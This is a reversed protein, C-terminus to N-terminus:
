ANEDLCPIRLKKSPNNERYRRAECKIFYSVEFSNCLQGLRPKCSFYLEEGTETNIVLVKFICEGTGFLGCYQDSFPGEYIMGNPWTYIGDGFSKHDKFYGEYTEGSTYYFKGKGSVKGDVWNGVYRTGSPWIHESYGTFGKSTTEKEVQNTDKELQDTDKVKRAESKNSEDTSYIMFSVFALFLLFGYTWLNATAQEDENYKSYWGHKCNGHTCAERVDNNLKQCGVFYIVILVAMIIHKSADKMTIQQGQMKKLLILM